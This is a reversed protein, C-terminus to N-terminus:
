QGRKMEHIADAMHANHDTLIKQIAVHHAAQEKRAARVHHIVTVGAGAAIAAGLASSVNTYNGLALAVNTPVLSPVLVAVPVLWVLLLLLWILHIPHSLIRPIVALMRHLRSPEEEASALPEQMSM